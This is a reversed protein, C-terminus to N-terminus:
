EGYLLSASPFVLAETIGASSSILGNKPAYTLVVQNNEWNSGSIASNIWSYQFESAPLLSHIHDNDRVNTPATAGGTFEEVNFVLNLAGNPFTVTTNGKHGTKNQTIILRTTAQPSATYGIGTGANIKTVLADRVSQADFLTDYGFETETGPTYPNGNQATKGADGTIRFTTTIGDADTLTFRKNDDGSLLVKAVANIVITAATDAPGSGIGKAVKRTNRHQKHFSAEESYDTSSVTGHVSDLGFQGQHRARLARLGERRNSHSNVRICNEEGSSDSRVTLNRFNLSNYVSYQQSAIDLYGSTEIEVGGPASFRTRIASDSGISRDQAPNRNTIGPVHTPATPAVHDVGNIASVPDSFSPNAVPISIDFNGYVGDNQAAIEFSASSIFEAPILDTGNVSSAVEGNASPFSSYTSDVTIDFNGYSGTHPSLGRAPSITFDAHYIITAASSPGASAQTIRDADGPSTGHPLSNDHVTLNESNSVHNHITDGDDFGDNTESFTYFAKLNNYTTLSSLNSYDLQAGSNYIENVKSQTNFYTDFIMFEDLIVPPDSNAGPQSLGTTDADSIKRCGINFKWIEPAHHPTNTAEAEYDTSQSFGETSDWAQYSGNIYLKTQTPNLHSQQNMTGETTILVHTLSGGYTGIFDEYRHRFQRLPGTGNDVYGIAFNLDWHETTINNAIEERRIINIFTNPIQSATGGQLPLPHKQFETYIFMKDNQGTGTEPVPVNIYFSFTRPFSDVGAQPPSWSPTGTFNLGIDPDDGNISLAPSPTTSSSGGNDDEVYNITFDPNNPDPNLNAELLAELANWFTARPNSIALTEGGQQTDGLEYDISDITIFEGTVCHDPEMITFTGGTAASGAEEQVTETTFEQYSVQFDPSTFVSELSTKFANYYDTNNSFNTSISTGNQSTGDIEYAVNDILIYDNQNQALQTVDLGYIMFTGPDATQGQVGPSGQTVYGTDYLRGGFCNGQESQYQRVLTYYNTTKPLIDSVSSPLLNGARRLFYAQDGFTSMMEYNYTFNGHSGTGITTQINKINVPRKAREERFFVAKQSDAFPTVGVQYDPSTVGIAGGTDANGDQDIDFEGVYINWYEPRDNSSLVYGSTSLGETIHVHRSQRGGVHEYTFPGQIPIVNTIDTTDSHLNVVNFGEGLGGNPGTRNIISSYGTEISGSMINGPFVESIKRRYAYHSEDTRPSQDLLGAERGVTVFGDYKHKRLEAPTNEDVCPSKPNTGTGNGAGVIVINEPAGTADASNGPPIMGTLAERNKNITYNIGGHISYNFGANLDYPRSFRRTAYVNGQYVGNSGSLSIPNSSSQENQNTLVDIITGERREKQWLCNENQDGSLPAHGTRWNYKLEQVGRMSAETSTVTSLLGIQRQYKDRELIHPEIVDVIGGAFNASLPILQNVMSSINSDIWKFYEFFRDFDIDREVKDFFLQRAKALDKYDLRYRDVPRGFLNAFELTTSFSKLMEESILASPSKEMVFLNDSIDDDDSFNIEQEGKIYINQADYASEPLQKKYAQIFEYSFVSTENLPFNSGKAKHERRIIEDITGYITDTHGSTIDEVVFEGAGDSSTVTDFDWNLISLDQTPIQTDNVLYLNSGDISSRMGYNLVDKNHQLIEDNGLYDLWARVGGVQIDSQEQVQGTFDVIHAGAYVRKSANMLALGDSNTITQSLIVEQEVEGFNTTVAYLEVDYLPTTNTVGGAYPYTQPKIRVAVNYHENEYIDYIFDSEQKITGLQNRLVFKANRSGISDRVLFVQLDNGNNQWSYDTPSATNAEHFGMVSASIFPTSFYGPEDLEKKYPVVIDAEMTFANRSADASEAIFSNPSPVQYIVANFHDPDNFNIYKKKVSTERSKDTFYQTGGDTYLNLRILEDDIGYCRILNRISGETGKSKYIKELNNYINTYIINKIEHLETEFQADQLNISALKEYVEDSEFMTSIMFGKDKLLNAAMTSAKIGEKPYRKTKLETLERIQVHLTDLYYSLIQSFKRLNGNDEEQLWTPMSRFFSEGRDNDYISGSLQMESILSAVDSHEKYIIPSPAETYGSLNMASDTSRAVSGPYGVWTGNAIRGSYDLITSDIANNGVIGENFKFYVGLDSTADDTNAGGGIEHFWNLKIQRSTRKTKWFRFEDLYGQFKGSGTSGLGGLNTQLAGIFADLKGQFSYTNPFFDSTVLQGNIYFGIKLTSDEEFLSIAFHMWVGTNFNQIDFIKAAFPNSGDDISLRIYNNAGIKVFEVALRSISSSSQGNWLDLIVEAENTNAIDKKMWFEITVGNEFDCNWNQNRNKDQDYKASSDLHDSLSNASSRTHLGGWVRIYEPTNTERYLGSLSGFDGTTGLKVHGTTKPYKNEFVWRELSSAKEEFAIQEAKSGDYPYDEYIRRIAADYYLEASGYYVFNKPDSFDIQPHYTEDAKTKEEVFAVSEVDQVTEELNRSTKGFLDKISM